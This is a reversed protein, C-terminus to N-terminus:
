LVTMNVTEEALSQLFSEMQATREIGMIRAANTHLAGPLEEAFRRILRVASPLDPTWDERGVIAILRVIGVTGMFDLTDADHLVIAEVQDTPRTSFMHGRIADQVLQIKEAPFEMTQLIEGCVDASRDAHDVGPQRYPEFVGIDHLYAAALLVDDDVVEGEARALQQATELDRAFHPMGWAPHSCTRGVFLMLQEQWMSLTGM